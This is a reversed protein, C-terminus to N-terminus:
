KKRWVGLVSKGLLHGFLPDLKRSVPVLLGDWFAIQRRTPMSRSLLLRNGLSALLGAADLYEMKSIRMGTPTLDALRKANYRRYHGIAKDFPTFLWPHAPALVICSGGAKLHSAAAELEGRDDGIHELVDVYLISDFTAAPPLNQLTGTVVQYRDDTSIRASLSADPELCTWRTFSADAFAQTNAGIGAGVELVDGRLHPAIKELLYRKWNKAEAFIELESGVYQFESM